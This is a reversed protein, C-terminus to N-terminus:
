SQPPLIKIKCLNTIINKTRLQREGVIAMCDFCQEKCKPPFLITNKQQESLNTKELASATDCWEDISFNGGSEKICYFNM